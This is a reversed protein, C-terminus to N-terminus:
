PRTVTVKIDFNGEFKDAFYEFVYNGSEGIYVTDKGSSSTKTGWVLGEGGYLDFNVEGNKDKVKYVVELKDGEELYASMFNAGGSSINKFEDSLNFVVPGNTFDLEDHKFDQQIIREPIVSISAGSLNTEDDYGVFNNVMSSGINVFASMSIALVGTILAAVIVIAIFVKKHKKIIEM